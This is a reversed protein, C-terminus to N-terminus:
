RPTRPWRDRRRRTPRVTGAPRGHHLDRSRARSRRDSRSGGGGTHWVRPPMRDDFPLRLAAPHPASWGRPGARSTPKPPPFRALPLTPARASRARRLDSRLSSSSSAARMRGRCKSRLSTMQRAPSGPSLRNTMASPSACTTPAPPLRSDGARRGGAGPLRSRRSTGGSPRAASPSRRRPSASSLAELQTLAVERRDDCPLRADERVQAADQTVPEGLRGGPDRLRARPPFSDAQEEPWGGLVARGSSTAAVFAAVGRGTVHTSARGDASSLGRSARRDGRRGRWRERRRRARARCAGAAPRRSRRGRRRARRRVLALESASSADSSRAAAARGRSRPPRRRRSPPPTGAPRVRRAASALRDRPGHADRRAIREVCCSRAQSPLCRERVFSPSASPAPPALPIRVDARQPHEFLRPVRDVADRPATDPCDDAGHYASPMFASSISDVIRAPNLGSTTAAM